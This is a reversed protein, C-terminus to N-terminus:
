RLGEAIAGVGVAVVFGTLEQDQAFSEKGVGIGCFCKKGVLRFMSVPIPSKEGMGTLTDFFDAITLISTKAIPVSEYIFTYSRM